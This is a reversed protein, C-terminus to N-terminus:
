AIGKERYMWERLKREDEEVKAITEQVKKKKGILWAFKTPDHKVKFKRAKALLCRYIRLALGRSYKKGHQSLRRFGAAVHKADHAPYSRDPGCFSTKPLDKREAYTLVAEEIPLGELEAIIKVGKTVDDM